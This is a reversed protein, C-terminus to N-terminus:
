KERREAHSSRWAATRWALLDRMAMLAKIAVCCFAGAHKMRVVAFRQIGAQPRNSVGLGGALV